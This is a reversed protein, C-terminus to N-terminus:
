SSTLLIRALKMTSPGSSARKPWARTESGPPSAIPVCAPRGADRLAPAAPRSDDRQVLAIDVSGRRVPQFASFDQKGLDRHHRGLRRQHRRRQCLGSLGGDGIRCALRLTASRALQRLVMPARMVPMPVPSSTISPTFRAAHRCSAGRSARGSRPRCRRWRPPSSRRCHIRSAPHAPRIDSCASNLTMSFHPASILKSAPRRARQGTSAPVSRRRDSSRAM